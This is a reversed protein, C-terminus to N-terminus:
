QGVFRRQTQNEHVRASSMKTGSKRGRKMKAVDTSESSFLKGHGYHTQEEPITVLSEHRIDLEPYRNSFELIGEKTLLWCDRLDLVQLLPPPVFSCLGPNTVVAGQISFYNLNPLSSVTVLSIDSLFDSRLYLRHLEKLFSLPQCGLDYVHTDKLDLIELHELQQLATLSFIPNSLREGVHVFGKINTYSLNISRLAPMLGLYALGNDDVATHSLSIYELKPVNGALITLAESGVRTTSLNLRKLNAGINAVFNMSSDTVGTCSLDLCELRDMGVLFSVNDVSSSSLDLLSLNQTGLSTFVQNANIFMAGSFHLSLLSTELEGLGDFISDITCKSMNLSKLSLLAPVQTVNTWALNLFNLKPFAKLRAVGENSIHSGWIDLQQLQSLA